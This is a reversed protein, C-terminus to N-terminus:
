SLSSIGEEISCEIDGEERYVQYGRKLLVNSIAKKVIFKIDGRLYFM